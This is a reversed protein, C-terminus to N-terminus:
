HRRNRYCWDYHKRRDQEEEQARWCAEQYEEAEKALLDKNIERWRSNAAHQVRCVPCDTCVYADLWEAIGDYGNKAYIAELAPAPPQNCVQTTVFVDAADELEAEHKTMWTINAAKQIKCARCTECYETNVYVVYGRYGHAQYLNSLSPHPTQCTLVPAPPPPAAAASTIEEADEMYDPVIDLRPGRKDHRSAKHPKSWKGKREHTKSDTFAPDM